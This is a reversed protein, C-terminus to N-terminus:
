PSPPLFRKWREGPASFGVYIGGALGALGGWGGLVVPWLGCDDACIGERATQVVLGALIGATAGGLLGILLGRAAGAGRSRRGGSVDLRDISTVPLRRQGMEYLQLVLSDGVVEVVTGLERNLELDSSWLRIRQGALGELRAQALATTSVALLLLGAMWISRQYRMLM